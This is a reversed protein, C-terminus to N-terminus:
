SVRALETEVAQKRGTMLRDSFRAGIWASWAPRNADDVFRDLVRAIAVAGLQAYPDHTDTLTKLQALAASATLEGRM